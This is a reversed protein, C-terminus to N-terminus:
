RGKPKRPTQKPLSLGQKRRLELDTQGRDVPQWPKDLDSQKLQMRAANAQWLRFRTKVEHLEAELRTIVALLQERSRRADAKDADKPIRNRQAGLEKTRKAFAAVVEPCNALGSRSWTWKWHIEARGLLAEWTLPIARHDPWSVIQGVFWERVEVTLRRRAKTREKSKARLDAVQRMYRDSGAYPALIRSEKKRFPACPRSREKAAQMHM